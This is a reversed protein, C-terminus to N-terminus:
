NNTYYEGQVDAGPKPDAFPLLMIALLVFFLVCFSKMMVSLCVIILYVTMLRDITM